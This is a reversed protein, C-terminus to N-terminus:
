IRAHEGPYSSPIQRTIETRERDCNPDVGLVWTGDSDSIVIRRERADYWASRGNSERTPNLKELLEERKAIVLTIRIYAAAIIAIWIAQGIRPLILVGGFLLVLLLVCIKLQTRELRRRYEEM